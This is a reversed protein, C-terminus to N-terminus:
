PSSPAGRKPANKIYEDMMHAFARYVRNSLCELHNMEFNRIDVRKKDEGRNFYKPREMLLVQARQVDPKVVGDFQGGVYCIRGDFSRHRREPVYTTLDIWELATALGEYEGDPDNDERFQEIDLHKGMLFRMSFEAPVLLRGVLTGLPNQVFPIRPDIDAVVEHFEPFIPAALFIGKIYNRRVEEETLVYNKLLDAGQSVGLAYIVESKEREAIWRAMAGIAAVKRKVSPNKISMVDLTFTRYGYREALEGALQRACSAPAGTFPVILICEDRRMDLGDKSEEAPIFAEYNAPLRVMSERPSVVEWLFFRDKHAWFDVRGPKPDSQFGPAEDGLNKDLEEIEARDTLSHEFRDDIEDSHPRDSQRVVGACGLCLMIPVCTVWVCCVLVTKIRQPMMM